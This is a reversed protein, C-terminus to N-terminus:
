VSADPYVHHGIVCGVQFDQSAGSIVVGNPNKVSGGAGRNDGIPWLCSPRMGACCCLCDGAAAGMRELEHRNLGQRFFRNKM